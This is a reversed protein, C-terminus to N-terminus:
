NREKRGMDGFIQSRKFSIRFLMFFALAIVAGILSETWEAFVMKGICFLLGYIGMVSTIWSAILFKITGNDTQNSVRKWWGAPKIREYFLKLHEFNTPRTLFTVSVWIVISMSVTFLFDFPYTWKFVFHSLSFGVLPALSASIESWANIRSWYWRLILVLGLGAGCEILFVFAEQISDIMTTALMAILMIVVTFVRGVFVYHRQALLEDKFESEPRIFRRYLDHTLFSSGWNLQTSITSMYAALFAVLLLGKAGTPLHDKMAMVFGEGAEVNTLEPYLVLTCLGVIIWPWPRLCYHAVQFLMTAYVANKEDKASMIRQAIYGGGGPEAGPYWSAWWQVLSMTLFTGISLSFVEVMDTDQSIVPLFDFRWSPLQEKLGSIGGVVELNLVIIALIICGTMAIVFQIMDNVVVGRLGALASYFAVFGMAAFVILLLENSDFGFFVKLIKILAVNVWGIVVANLFVGMYVSKFARLIKAALGSYRLEIFELETLINARRWLPAFFFTTLMGGILMNWWLWNGSIGNSSILEAVLLPTDAAFTTAVMSIGAVYWPLNRGSLFFDALSKGASKRYTWGIWLSLALYGLIIIWDTLNLM